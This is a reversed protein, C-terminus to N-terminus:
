KNALEIIQEPAINGIFTGRLRKDKGYVMICPVSGIKFHNAFFYNYDQGMTINLYQKLDFHKYFDMMEKFPYPTFIFFHIDTLKKIEQTIQTMEKQCYPCDPRFYFLVTSKNTEKKAVDIITASDPLLLNFSPLVQGKLEPYSESQQEAAKKYSAGIYKSACEFVILGLIIIGGITFIDKKTM